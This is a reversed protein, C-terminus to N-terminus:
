GAGGISSAVKYIAFGVGVLADGVILGAALPVGKEEAFRPGKWRSVLISVVGGLGFVIMYEFPLYLSLGVMVGLGPSVLLSVLLGLAAGSLYKAVPIDQELVIRIAGQLAGAQPAGLVPIGRPLKAETGGGREYAAAAEPGEAAAREHLIRAQEPGFAYAKWLIVVTALAISPGIWCTAIQAIQQRAPRAGVLYGAKLDTMMDACMSTAVCIAAGLTVAPVISREELGFIAMLLAIAILALGSLPSWDTRGTTQAVVLGALWLWAGGALSALLATGWAVHEGGSLKAAALLLVFGLLMGGKLVGISVEERRGGPGASRLSSIAARLAPLAIAIGAIAGGLIMGIGLPRSTFTAFAGNFEEAKGYDHFDESARDFPTFGSFGEPVWGLYLALPILLWFNLLTGYLIALGHRGALYGAGLSLLSVAFVLRLGAPLGLAKGLEIRESLLPEHNPPEAAAVQSESAPRVEKLPIMTLGSILAAIGIGALLLRAKEVGAGPSKLIAAVAVGEPFRLREFDIIQKRLPIILVVGLISGGITALALSAFDIQEEKGLLFLVPVTFIVGANVTNVSSAVTQFINVELISGRRLLGRLLGFGIVAAVTSGVITFGIQLGAFCIGMNLLIGTGIGLLLSSLTLERYPKRRPDPTSDSL